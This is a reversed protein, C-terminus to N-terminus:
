SSLHRMQEPTRRVAEREDGEKEKQVARGGGGGGGCVDMGCKVDWMWGGRCNYRYWWGVGAWAGM